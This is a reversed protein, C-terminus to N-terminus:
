SALDTFQNESEPLLEVSNIIEEIEIKSYIPFALEIFEKATEKSMRGAAVKDLIPVIASTVVAGTDVVDKTNEKVISEYEFELWGSSQPYFRQAIQQTLNGALDTLRPTLGYEAFVYQQADADARTTSGGIGFIIRPVGSIQIIQDRTINLSNIIEAQKPNFSIPIPKIGNDFFAIDGFAGKYTEELAKKKEQFKLPNMEKDTSLAISPSMGKDFFDLYKEKQKKDINALRLVADVMGIGYTSNSIDIARHYFINRPDFYLPGKATMLEFKTYDGYENKYIQMRGMDPFIPTIEIPRDFLKDTEIYWFMGRLLEYGQQTLRMLQHFTFEENVRYFVEFIEHDNVEKKERLNSYKYLKLNTKSFSAVANSLINVCAYIWDTNNQLKSQDTAFNNPNLYLDANIANYASYLPRDAGRTEDAVESRDTTIQGRDLMHSFTTEYLKKFLSKEKRDM